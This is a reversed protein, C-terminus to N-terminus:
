KRNIFANYAEQIDPLIFQDGEERGSILLMQNGLLKMIMEGAERDWCSEALENLTVSESYAPTTDLVRIVSDAYVKLDSLRLVTLPKRRIERRGTKVFDQKLAEPANNDQLSLHSLVNRYNWGSLAEVEPSAAFYESYPLVSWAAELTAMNCADFGILRLKLSSKRLGEQIESLTLTDNGAISDYGIGKGGPLGHGWLILDDGNHGYQKLFSGFRAANSSTQEGYDQIIKRTGQEIELVYCRSNELEPMWWVMSGGLYAIVRVPIDKTARTIEMLDDTVSGSDTELDSGLIFILVTHEEASCDLLCLSLALVSLVLLSIWRFISKTRITKMGIRDLLFYTVYLKSSANIIIDSQM